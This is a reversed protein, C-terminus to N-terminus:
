RHLSFVTDPACLLVILAQFAKKGTVAGGNNKRDEDEVDEEQNCPSDRLDKM